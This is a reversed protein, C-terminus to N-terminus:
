STRQEMPFVFGNTYGGNQIKLFEILLKPLQVKLIMQANKVMEKTLSPHNYYNKKWFNNKNIKM